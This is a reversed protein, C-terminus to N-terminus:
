EDEYDNRKQRKPKPKLCFFLVEEFHELGELIQEGRNYIYRFRYNSKLKDNGADEFSVIDFWAFDSLHVSELPKIITKYPLVGLKEKVFEKLKEDSIIEDNDFWLYLKFPHNIKKHTYNIKDIIKSELETGIFSNLKIRLNVNINNM